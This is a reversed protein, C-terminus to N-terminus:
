KKNNLEEPSYLKYSYEPIEILKDQYIINYIEDYEKCNKNNIVSM